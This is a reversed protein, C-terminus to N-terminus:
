SADSGELLDRTRGEDVGRVWLVAPSSLTLGLLPDDIQLRYPIDADTLFGAALEAEHRYSYRGVVVLQLKKDTKNTVTASRPYDM